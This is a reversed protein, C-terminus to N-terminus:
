ATPKVVCATIRGYAATSIYGFFTRHAVNDTATVEYSPAGLGREEKIGITMTGKYTHWLSAASYPITRPLECTGTRSINSEASVVASDLLFDGNSQAQQVFNCMDVMQSTILATLGCAATASAIWSAKM